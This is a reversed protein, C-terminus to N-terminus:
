GSAQTAQQHAPHSLANGRRCPLGRILGPSLFPKGVAEQWTWPALALTLVGPALNYLRQKVLEDDQQSESTAVPLHLLGPHKRGRHYDESSARGPVPTPPEKLAWPLCIFALVAQGRPFTAM